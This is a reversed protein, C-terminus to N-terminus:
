GKKRAPVLLTLAVDEPRGTERARNLIAKDKRQSSVSAPQAAVTRLTKTQVTPEVKKMLSERKAVLDRYRAADRLVLLARHDMVSELEQKTYGYTKATSTLKEMLAKAKDPDRVEPVKEQLAEAESAIFRNKADSSLQEQQQAVRAAEQRVIQQKDQADRWEERKLAYQLPDRAKLEDWNIGQNSVQGLVADIQQLKALVQNNNEFLTNAQQEAVKRAESAQQIRKEIFKQGSFNDKLDKLKVKRVEEDVKVEVETDDGFEIPTQPEDPPNDEEETGMLKALSTEEDDTPPPEEDGEPKPKPTQLKPVEQPIPQKDGPAKEFLANLLNDTSAEADLSHDAEDAM